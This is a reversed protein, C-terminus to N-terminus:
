GFRIHTCERPSRVDNDIVIRSVLPYPPQAIVAAPAVVAPGVVLDIAIVVCEEPERRLGLPEAGTASGPDTVSACARLAVLPSLGVMFKAALPDARDQSLVVIV